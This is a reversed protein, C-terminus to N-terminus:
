SGSPNDESRTSDAAGGLPSAQEQQAEVKAPDTSDGSEANEEANSISPDEVKVPNERVEEAKKEIIEKAQEPTRDDDGPMVVKADGEGHISDNAALVNQADAADFVPTTNEVKSDEAGATGSTDLTGTAMTPDPVFDESETYAAGQTDVGTEQPDPATM